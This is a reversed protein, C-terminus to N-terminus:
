LGLCESVKLRKKLSDDIYGDKASDSKWRGHRKWCRESVVSSNAAATAGGARLSHLGINRNHTVNKLRNKVTEKTRTYSLRKNKSIVGCKRKTRFMPKFLYHDSTLVINCLRIYKLLASVPCTMSDLKAIVVEDGKRYQDTKSKRIKISVYNEHITVDNCCLNSVENYRLFGAFCIVIIALDRAVMPDKSDKYLGFLSRIDESTICDKKVVPSSNCRKSTELLCKVYPHSTPDSLGKLKHAWKISFIYSEICHYSIKSELLHVIFCSIQIPDAPVCSGKRASIFTRWRKFYGLYKKNTNESRSRVLFQPLKAILDDFHHGDESGGGDAQRSSRSAEAVSEKISLVASFFFYAFVNFCLNSIM